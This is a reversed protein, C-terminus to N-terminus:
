KRFTTKTTQYVHVGPIKARGKQARVMAAVARNICDESMFPAIVNLDVADYDNISYTWEKRVAAGEIKGGESAAAEQADAEAAAQEAQAAARAAADTSKAEEARRRAEEEKRRAEEARRRAREAEEAQKKRAYDDARNQLDKQQRDIMAALSKFFGDLAKKADFLPKGEASRTDDLKRALERGKLILDRVEAVDDETRVTKPATSMEAVMNEVEKRLDAYETELVEEIPPRNGGFIQEAIPTRETM